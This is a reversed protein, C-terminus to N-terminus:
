ECGMEERLRGAARQVVVADGIPADHAADVRGAGGRGGLQGDADKLLQHDSGIELLSKM